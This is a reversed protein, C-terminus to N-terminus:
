VVAVPLMYAQICNQPLTSTHNIFCSLLRVCQCASRLVQFACRPRLLFAAISKHGTATGRQPRRACGGGWITALGWM